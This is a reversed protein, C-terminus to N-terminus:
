LNLCDRCLKPIRASVIFDACTQGHLDASGETEMEGCNPLATAGPRGACFLPLSQQEERHSAVKGRFEEEPPVAESALAPPIPSTM